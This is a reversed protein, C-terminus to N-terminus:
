DIVTDSKLGTIVSRAARCHRERKGAARDRPNGADCGDCATRARTGCYQLGKASRRRRCVPILAAPRVETTIGPRWRQELPAEPPEADRYEARDRIVVRVEIVGHSAGGRGDDALEVGTG